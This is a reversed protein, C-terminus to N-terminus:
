SGLVGLTVYNLLKEATSPEIGLNELAEDYRNQYKRSLTVRDGYESVPIGYHDVVARGFDHEEGLMAKDFEEALQEDEQVEDMFEGTDRDLVHGWIQALMVGRVFEDKEDDTELECEDAIWGPERHEGSM